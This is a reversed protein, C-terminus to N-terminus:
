DLKISVRVRNCTRQAISMISCLEDFATCNIFQDAACLTQDFVRYLPILIKREGINESRPTYTGLLFRWEWSCFNRPVKAGPFSHALHFSENRSYDSRKIVVIISAPV